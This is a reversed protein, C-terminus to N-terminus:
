IDDTQSNIETAAKSSSTPNPKKNIYVSINDPKRYPQYTGINLNFQVDLFNVIGLGAQITLTEWLPHSPPHM